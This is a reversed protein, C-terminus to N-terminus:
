AFFRTSCQVRMVGCWAKFLELAYNFKSQYLIMTQFIGKTSFIFSEPLVHIGLELPVQYDSLIHDGIHLLEEPALKESQLVHEFLKGSGKSIGIEGSLYLADGEKLLGHRLLLARLFTGPLYMDSIFIVRGHIQRARQVLEIAGPVPYLLEQETVLELNILYDIQSQSIRSITAMEEYILQLSIKGRESKRCAIFESWVRFFHFSKIFIPSFGLSGDIKNEMIIFVHVPKVVLRTVLTDFVDFSTLKVSNFDIL